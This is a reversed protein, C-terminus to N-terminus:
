GIFKIGSVHQIRAFHRTDFEIVVSLVNDHQLLNPFKKLNAVLWALYFPDSRLGAFVRYVQDSTSAGKEDNVVLKLVQGNPLTCTGRQIPGAGHLGPVLNDFRFSFRYEEDGPKFRAAKGMGAITARRVVISHNVANSFVASAGASPFVNAVLVTRDPNEPSTFAFLDSLDAAPDGISRPGDVHDSM